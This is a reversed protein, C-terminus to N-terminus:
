DCGHCIDCDKHQWNGERDQELCMSEGWCKIYIEYAENSCSACSNEDIIEKGQYFRYGDNNGMDEDAWWHEIEAEPYIKSLGLIVPGPNSWATEFIIIDEGDQRNSYSNWKTGWYNICWDYWTTCGYKKYNDIYVQGNHYMENKKSEPMVFTKEMVRSFLLKLGEDGYLLMDTLLKRAVDLKKGGICGVPITCRNTLYYMICEKTMSGSEIDLSKPMPIIKNFDFCKVGDEMVFLPLNLIGKMKVINKVNNPM